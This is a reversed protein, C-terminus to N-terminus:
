RPKTQDINNQKSLSRLYAVVAAADKKNFRYAPMPPRASKGSTDVGTTLFTIMQEDTFGLLGILPPAYEVWNPVPGLPKFTLGAGQLTKAEIPQGHDDHPTHCDGCLAVHQVLYRGYELETKEAASQARSGGATIGVVLLALTATVLKKMM